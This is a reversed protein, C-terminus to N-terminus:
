GCPRAFSRTAWKMASGSSRPTELYRALTSTLRRHLRSAGRGSRAAWLLARPIDCRAEGSQDSPWQALGPAGPRDHAVHPNLEAVRALGDLASKRDGQIADLAALELTAYWSDPDRDLAREFAIRMRRLQGLRSAIAGEVLYPRDSLFNLDAARDLRDYAANPAAGWIEAARKTDVAATWPLALSLAAFM